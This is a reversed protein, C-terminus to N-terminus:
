GISDVYVTGMWTANTTFEVGIQRLPIQANTPVTVTITNWSGLTLSAIPTNTGTFVFGADPGQQVFPQVDAIPAGIPIWVHFTILAGPPFRPNNAIVQTTAAAGNFNVALSQNGAFVEV